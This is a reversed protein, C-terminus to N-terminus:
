SFGHFCLITSYYITYLSLIFNGQGYVQIIAIKLINRYGQLLKVHMYVFQKLEGGSQGNIVDCAAVKKKYLSTYM